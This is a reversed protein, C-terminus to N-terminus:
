TRRARRLAALAMPIGVITLVVFVWFLWVLPTGPVLALVLMSGWWGFLVIARFPHRRSWASVNSRSPQV